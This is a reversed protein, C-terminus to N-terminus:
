LNWQNFFNQFHKYFFFFFDPQTILLFIFYYFLLQEILKNNNKFMESTLNDAKLLDTYWEATVNKPYEIDHGPLPYVIESFSVTTV